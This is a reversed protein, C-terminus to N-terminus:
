QFRAGQLQWNIQYAAPYHHCKVGAASVLCMHTQNAGDGGRMGKEGRGKARAELWGAQPFQAAMSAEFAASLPGPAESCICCAQWNIWPKPNGSALVLSICWKYSLSSASCPSLPSPPSLPLFLPFSPPFSLLIDQTVETSGLKRETLRLDVGPERQRPKKWWHLPISYSLSSMM